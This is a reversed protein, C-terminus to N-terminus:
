CHFIYMTLNHKVLIIVIFFVINSYQKYLNLELGTFVYLMRSYINGGHQQFYKIITM